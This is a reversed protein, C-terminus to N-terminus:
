EKFAHHFVPPSITPYWLFKKKIKVCQLPVRQLTSSNGYAL